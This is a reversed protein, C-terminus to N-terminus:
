KALPCSSIIFKFYTDVVYYTKVTYPVAALLTRFILVCNLSRVETISAFVMKNPIESIVCDIENITNLATSHM